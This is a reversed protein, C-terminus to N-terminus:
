VMLGARSFSAANLRFPLLRLMVSLPRHALGVPYVTGLRKLAFVASLSGDNEMPAGYLM